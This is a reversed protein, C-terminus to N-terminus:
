KSNPTNGSLLGSVLHKNQLYEVATVHDPSYDTTLLKFYGNDWGKLIGKLIYGRELMLSVHKDKNARLYDNLLHPTAHSDLPATVSPIKKVTTPAFGSIMHKGQLYARSTKDGPANYATTSLLVFGPDFDELIGTIRYGNRLILLIPHGKHKLLFEDLLRSKKDIM